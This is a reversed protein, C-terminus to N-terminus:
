LILSTSMTRNHGRSAICLRPM